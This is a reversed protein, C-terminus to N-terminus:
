GNHKQVEQALATFAIAAVSRPAHQFISQSHANAEEVKVAKPIQAKFLQGKFHDKLIGRADRSVNTVKDVSTAVAGLIRLRNHDMSERVKEITGELLEIGRLAWFSPSVPIIIEEAAMLANITLLGLSPPTDFIVFDRQLSRLAKKLMSERGFVQAFELDASALSIDCPLIDLNEKVPAIVDLARKEGTFVDYLSAEPDQSALVASTNSQPDCDVVLVSSKQSLAWALNVVVTSKGVGGKQNAVVIRRM